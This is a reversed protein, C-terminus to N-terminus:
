HVRRAPTSTCRCDKRSSWDDQALDTVGKCLSGVSKTDALDALTARIPEVCATWSCPHGLLSSSRQGVDPGTCLMSPVSRHNRIKKLRELDERMKNDLGNSLVQSSKGDVQTPSHPALSPLM